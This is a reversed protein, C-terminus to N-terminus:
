TVGYPPSMFQRSSFIARDMDRNLTTSASEDFMHLGASTDGRHWLCLVGGWAVLALCTAQVLGIIAEIM